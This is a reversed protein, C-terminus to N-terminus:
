SKKLVVREKDGKKVTKIFNRFAAYDTVPYTGKYLDFRRALTLTGDEM